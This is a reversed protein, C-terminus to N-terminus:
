NLKILNRKTHEDTLIRIRGLAASCANMEYALKPENNLNSPDSQQYIRDLSGCILNSHEHHICFTNTYVCVYM